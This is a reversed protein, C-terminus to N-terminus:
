WEFDLEESWPEVIRPLLAHMQPPSISPYVSLLRALLATVRPAAFSSGTKVQSGGGLWLVEVNDGRAAYGVMKGPRFFTEGGETRALRVGHVSSFHSPWEVESEDVNNCAAVVHVGRLWAEDAWGKHPLIFKALGRCGFSCNLIHYGRDMAERIGACIMATRSLSRADITRFSGIEAEPALEHVIGAVATGHGYVDGGEGERITVRGAEEVFGVSDRLAMGALRPHGADIGSDIVAVRVGRGTGERMAAAAQEPSVWAASDEGESFGAGSM